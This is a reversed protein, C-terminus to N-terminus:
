AEAEAVRTFWGSERGLLWLGVLALVAHVWWMGLWQPVEDREVMTRAVSLMNAYIIYVLIGVGLDIDDVRVHEVNSRFLM